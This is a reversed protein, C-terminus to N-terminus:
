RCAWLGPEQNIRELYKQCESQISEATAGDSSFRTIFKDKFWLEVIHDDELIHFGIDYYQGLYELKKYASLANM